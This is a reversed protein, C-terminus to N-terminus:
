EKVYRLSNPLLSIPRYTNAKEHDGNKLIPCVEVIKRSTPFVESTLYANIISTISPAIIPLSEKILRPSIKDIGPAKKNPISNVIGKVLSYRPLLSSTQSLMIKKSHMVSNERLFNPRQWRLDGLRVWFGTFENAVTQDDKTFSKINAPKKPICSRIAKWINGVDNTNRKIHEELFERQALRIERIDERKFNRYGSWVAPDNTQRTLRQWNDRTRRQAIIEQWAAFTTMLLRIQDRDKNILNSPHMNILSKTFYHILPTSNTNSM